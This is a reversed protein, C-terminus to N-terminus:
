KKFLKNYLEPEKEKLCVRCYTFYKFEKPDSGIPWWIDEECEFMYKPFHEFCIWCHRQGNRALIFEDNNESRIFNL